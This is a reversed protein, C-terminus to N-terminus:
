KAIVFREFGAHFGTSRPDKNVTTFKLINEGEKFNVRGLDVNVLGLERSYCDITKGIIKGNLYVFLRGSSPSVSLGISLNYEGATEIPLRFDVRSEPLSPTWQLCHDNLWQTTNSSGELLTSMKRVLLKGSHPRALWALETAAVQLKGDSWEFATPSIGLFKQTEIRLPALLGYRYNTVVPSIAVLREMQSYAERSKEDEGQQKYAMALMMSNASDLPHLEKAKVFAKIAAEYNKNFFEAAGLCKYSRYDDILELRRKALKLSQQADREEPPLAAQLQIYSEIGGLDDPYIRLSRALDAVCERMRGQTEFLLARRRYAMRDKDDLAISYNAFRIADEYFGQNQFHSAKALYYLANDPEQEIALDLMETAADKSILVTVDSVAQHVNFYAEVGSEIEFDWSVEEAQSQRTISEDQWDLKSERLRQRIGELNWRVISNFGSVAVLHRGGDTIHAPTVRPIIESGLPVMALRRGTNAEMLLISKPQRLSFALIRGNPSFSTPWAVRVDDVRYLLEWSETSYVEAQDSYVAALLSGDNNLFARAHTPTPIHKLTEGTDGDIVRIHNGHHNGQAILKGHASISVEISNALVKFEKKLENTELDYLRTYERHAAALVTGTSDIAITPSSLHVKLEDCIKDPPGVQCTGKEGDRTYELPWRWVGNTHVSVFFRGHPDFLAKMARPMVIDKSEGTVTDCIRLGSHLCMLAIQGNPHLTLNTPRKSPSRSMNGAVHRVDKARAFEWVELEAGSRIVLQKGDDSFRNVKGSVVMLEDGTTSNWFRTDFAWTSTAIVAGDPSFRVTDVSESHRLRLLPRNVGLRYVSLELDNSAAFIPKSPHWAVARCHSSQSGSFIVSDDTLDHICIKGRSTAVLLKSGDPSFDLLEGRIPSVLVREQEFREGSNIVIGRSADYRALRKGQKDLAMSSGVFEAILESAQWDFIRIRHSYDSIWVRKYGPFFRIRKIDRNVAPIQGVIEQSSSSHITVPKGFSAEAAYYKLNSCFEFAGIAKHPYPISRQSVIDMLGLCGIAENRLNFVSQRQFEAQSDANGLSKVRPLLSAAEEIAQLGQFRQGPQRSTRRSAAESVRSQFLNNIAKDRELNAQASSLASLNALHNFKFAFIISGITVLVLITAVLALLSAILKNKKAWRGMRKGVSLRRALIPEDNLFRRLDDAVEKASAYRSEPSRDIAKHIITELDVPIGRRLSRLQPASDNAIQHILGHRSNELFAPRLAVLEYLTLGLSCIDSRVNFQGSLVEPAMYRLTGVIDGSETPNLEDDAKALGFDTIWVNGREDLILNSPKIDRHLIGECHAYHLAESVEMGLKAVHKWYVSKSSGSDDSAVADVSLRQSFPQDSEDPRETSGPRETLATPGITKEPSVVDFDGTKQLNKISELVQDLSVGDIYQMVYFYTEGDHGFDFVPVINSHHLRAASRAERLFRQEYKEHHMLRPLVKLAVRRGLSLHEAEYVVGMGGRGLEHLIRYDGLCRDQINPDNPLLDTQGVEEGATEMMELLPFLDRIEQALEPHLDAYENISPSAGGRKEALYTEFLKEVPNRSSDTAM